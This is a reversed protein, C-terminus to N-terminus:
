ITLSSSSHPVCLYLHDYYYVALIHSKYFPFIWGYTVHLSLFKAFPLSMGSIKEFTLVTSPSTLLAPPTQGEYHPVDLAEAAVLHHYERVRRIITLFIVM